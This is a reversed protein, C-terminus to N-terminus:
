DPAEDAPPAAALAESLNYRTEPTCETVRLGPVGRIRCALGSLERGDALRCSVECYRCEGNWCYRGYGIEQSVYQMQRLLVSDEPVEFAKGLVVIPILREEPDFIDSM